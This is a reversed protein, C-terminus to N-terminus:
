APDRRALDLVEAHRLVRGTGNDSVVYGRQANAYPMPSTTDPLMQGGLIDVGRRALASLTARSFDRSFASM